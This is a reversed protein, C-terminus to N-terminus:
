LYPVLASKMEGMYKEDLRLCYRARVCPKDFTIVSELNIPTGAVVCDCDVSKVTAQLDKIQEDGYGMAPLCNVLHQFKQFVGKLSGKAFPHPDVIEKAGMQKALVFGAGFPMGGHTLTPGDDIVLVRKGAVMANVTDADLVAGTSDRAEPTVVSNGLLIPTNPGVLRRIHDVQKMAVEVSPLSNVKNIMILDAMRMNVEGPFFHEEHGERLADAVCITLDPKFFSFDNNGGDWIVVDADKEAERLIMEYDVGAFLLNGEEIHLEYEEREEITCKYKVLDDLVEYRQCRQNLLVQDYPMPHRVVAIKKGQKKLYDAIFRTTQSKGTGTRTACIAVIPKSSKLQTLKPPLQIFKCGAANVRAALSQVTDYNLDSYALACMTADFKKILSELENESYIMLGNPYRNGNKDNNCLEAPFLRGDIGPIQTGTFCQVIVNPQLSWYTMFDHFDRGAAGLIILKEM